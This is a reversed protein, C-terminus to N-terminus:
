QILHNKWLALVVDMQQNHKKGRDEGLEELVTRWLLSRNDQLIPKRKLVEVAKVVYRKNCGSRTYQGSPVGKVKGEQCLGLFSEKPCGKKKSSESMNNERAADNWADNANMKKSTVKEQAKIAVNAFQAVRITQGIEEEALNM